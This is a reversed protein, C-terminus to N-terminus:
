IPMMMVSAQCAIGEQRGTFGLKETTTAKISVASIPLSLVQATHTRMAERAPKIKPAECILTIDLNAIAYGAQLALDQAHTLFIQSDANKWTPDAPDFHDGIDGLALAGLIADTLAHWAVDADSHGVLGHTHPLHVGCLHVGDGPGFAHVDYGTGIRPMPPSAADKCLLAEVMTFDERYTIKTLRADGPILHVSQGSEQIAALDDVWLREDQKLAEQIMQLRFVQPTQVRRLPDREVSRPIGTSIDKLADSIPLAPACADCDQLEHLLASIIDPSLGPRAADHILVPIDPPGKIAGLGKQVSLTRHSGGSVIQVKPTDPLDLFAQFDAIDMEAPKVLIIQDIDKHGAFADVSWQLVSKGLLSQFQKPVPNDSGTRARHGAGAALILAAAKSM